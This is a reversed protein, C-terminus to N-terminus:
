NPLAKRQNWAMFRAPNWDATPLSAYRSALSVFFTAVATTVVYSFLQDVHIGCKTLQVQQEGTNM